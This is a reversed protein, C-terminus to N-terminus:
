AEETSLIQIMYYSMQTWEKERGSRQIKMKQNKTKMMKFHQWLTYILIENIRLAEYIIEMLIVRLNIDIAQIGERVEM